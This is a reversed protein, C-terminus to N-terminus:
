KELPAITLTLTPTMEELPVPPPELASIVESNVSLERLKGLVFPMSPRLNPDDAVRRCYRELGKATLHWGGEDEDTDAPNILTYSLLEYMVKSFSFVDSKKTLIAVDQHKVYEPAMYILSYHFSDAWGEPMSNTFRVKKKSGSKTEDVQKLAISAASVSVSNELLDSSLRRLTPDKVIAKPDFRSPGSKSPGSKVGAKMAARTSEIEAHKALTAQRAFVPSTLSSISMPKRFQRRHPKVDGIHAQTIDGQLGPQVGASATRVPQSWRPDLRPNKTGVRASDRTMVSANNGFRISCGDVTDPFRGYPGWVLPWYDKDELAKTCEDDDYISTLGMSDECVGSKIVSYVDVGSGGEHPGSSMSYPTADIAKVCEDKDYIGALGLRATNPNHSIGTCGATAGCKLLCGELNITFLKFATGETGSILAVDGTNKKTKCAQGIVTATASM